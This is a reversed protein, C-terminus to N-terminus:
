GPLSALSTPGLAVKKHRTRKQRARADGLLELHRLDDTGQIHQWERSYRKIDLRRTHRQRSNVHTQRDCSRQAASTGHRVVLRASQRRTDSRQPRSM